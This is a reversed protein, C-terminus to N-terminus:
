FAKESMDPGPIYMLRTTGGKSGTKQNKMRRLMHEITDQRWVSDSFMDGDDDDSCM